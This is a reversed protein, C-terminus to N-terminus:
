KVPAQTQHKQEPQGGCKAHHHQGIGQDRGQKVIAGERGGINTMSLQGDHGLRNTQDPKQADLNQGRPKIGFLVNSSRDFDCDGYENACLQEIDYEDGPECM